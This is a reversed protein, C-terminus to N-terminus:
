INTYQTVDHRSVVQTANLAAGTNQVIFVVYKKPMHGGFFQPADVSFPYVINSTASVTIVNALKFAGGDRVGANTLTKLGETGTITDPWTTADDLASSLYVFINTGVTPSTGTKLLGTIKESVSLNSTNDIVGSSWGALLNTDSALSALKTVTLAASAGYSPKLITAM